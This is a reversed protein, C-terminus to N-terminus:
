GMVRLWNRIEQKTKKLKEQLRELIEEEKGLDFDLNEHKLEPYASVIKQKKEEWNQFVKDDM